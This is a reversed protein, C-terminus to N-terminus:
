YTICTLPLGARHHKSTVSNFPIQPNVVLFNFRVELLGVLAGEIWTGAGTKYHM